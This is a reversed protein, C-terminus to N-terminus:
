PSLSHTNPTQDGTDYGKRMIDIQWRRRQLLIESEQEQLGLASLEDTQHPAPSPPPFLHRAYRASALVGVRVQQILDRTVSKTKDVWWATFEKDCLKTFRLPLRSFVLMPVFIVVVLLAM